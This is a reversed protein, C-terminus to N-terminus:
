KIQPRIKLSFAGAFLAIFPILSKHRFCRIFARLSFTLFKGLFSILMNLSNDIIKLSLLYHSHIMHYEYFFSAMKASKSGEHQILKDHLLILPINNKTARYCYEIDEGFFFFTEDLHGIADIVKKDFALACGTLYYLSGFSNLYPMTTILGLYKQYYNGKSLNEGWIITPSIISCPHDIFAKAFVNGADPTLVTDNNLLLFHQYGEAIARRLALNVGAAFGLNEEPFILRIESQNLFTNELKQRETKDASNDVLFITARLSNKVSKICLVTDDYGFYNLIIVVLNFTNSSQM